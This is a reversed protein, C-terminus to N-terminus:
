RMRCCRHHIRRFLSTGHWARAFRLAIYHSASLNMAKDALEDPLVNQLRLREELRIIRDQAKLPNTRVLLTMIVLAIALLIFEGRDWGPDQVFRVITYILHILMIPALVFHFPAHWRTHTAFDQKNEM